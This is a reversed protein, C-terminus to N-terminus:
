DGPDCRCLREGRAALWTCNFHQHLIIQCPRIVGGLISYVRHTVGNCKFAVLKKVTAPDFLTPFGGHGTVDQAGSM